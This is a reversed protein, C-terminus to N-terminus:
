ALLLLIAAGIIILAGTTGIAAAQAPTPPPPPPPFAFTGRRQAGSPSLKRSLTLRVAWYFVGLAFLIIVAIDIWSPLINRAGSGYRGLQLQSAAKLSMSPM